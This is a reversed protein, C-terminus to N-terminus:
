NCIGATQGNYNVCMYFLGKNTETELTPLNLRYFDWLLRGQRTNQDLPVGRIVSLRGDKRGGEITSAFPFEDCSYYVNTNSIPKDLPGPSHRPSFPNKGCSQSRNKDSTNVGNYAVGYHLEAWSGNGSFETYKGSVVNVAKQGTAADTGM